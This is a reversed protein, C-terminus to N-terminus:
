TSKVYKECPEEWYHYVMECEKVSMDTDVDIILSAYKAVKMLDGLDSKM